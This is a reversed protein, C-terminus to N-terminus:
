RKAPSGPVVLPDAHRHILKWTLNERCFIETIRLKMPVRTNKGHLHAVASQIGIWYGIEKGAAQQLTKLSSTSDSEFNGSDRKYRSWVKGAGRVTGGGPGFFTAAGRRSVLKGLPTPEGQVYARSAAARRSIFQGFTEPRSRTTKTKM